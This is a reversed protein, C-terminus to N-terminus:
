PTEPVTTPSYETASSLDQMEAPPAADPATKESLDHFVGRSFMWIIISIVAAFLVVAWPADAFYEFALGYLSQGIPQACVNVTMVLAIVKGVLNAPTYGQAFALMQVSFLTVFAMLAAAMATIVIYSLNANGFLLVLGMPLVTLACGLLHLHANRLKLRSGLAGALVGGIIGGAALAGQSIGYLQSSMGLYKTIIVPMGVMIMTTLFVNICFTIATVRVMVPFKKFTFEASEQLDGKVLAWVSQARPRKQFPIKIFLEIFASFAFCGCSVALIPWLGYNGYLVGGIVPGLLGALSQVLNVVANAPMLQDGSALLPVSAQVAPTYTGQIGYLLMLTVVVLPVIPATGMLLMFAAIIATTITDLVVMIRQKNARDAIIGGIPSTIIMPVFASASVFGFLAASGSQNLVFLPLAFRLINNGFLSIIQGIVVLTFDKSWLKTKM